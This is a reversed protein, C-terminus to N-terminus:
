SQFGRFDAFEELPARDTISRNAPDAPNERGLAIGCVVLEEPPLGLHQHVLDGYSALAGIPCTAYGRATAALMLTQIAMGLDMYCGPGMGRDITVVIGVPADFFRYNRRFQARRGEVDRRDIGLAAYLAYGAARQREKLHPPLPDPFYGYETVQPRNGTIATQLADVLAALPGGTLAIFRGPQLNAGSPARRAQTLLDAVIARSVPDPLYGRITRRRAALKSFEAEPAM